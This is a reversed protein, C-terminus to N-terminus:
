SKNYINDQVSASHLMNRAIKIRDNKDDNFRWSIFIKRLITTSIGKGFYHKTMKILINTIENKTINPFLLEGKKLKCFLSWKKLMNFVFPPLDINVNGLSNETKHDSISLIGKSGYSLFLNGNDSPTKSKATLPYYKLTVIINRLVGFDSEPNIFPYIYFTLIIHNRLNDLTSKDLSNYNLPIQKKSTNINFSNLLPKIRTEFATVIEDRSVWKESNNETKSMNTAETLYSNHLGDRLGSLTKFLTDQTEGNIKMWAIISSLYNRITAPKYGTFEQQFVKMNFWKSTHNNLLNFSHKKFTDKDVTKTYVLVLSGTYNKATSLKLGGEVFKDQIVKNIEKRDM